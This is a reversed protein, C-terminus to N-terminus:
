TTNPPPQHQVVNKETNIHRRFNDCTAAILDMSNQMDGETTANLACANAFLLEHITAMSVRSHSHIRRQKILQGDMWYAIRLVPNEDSYADMLMASLM